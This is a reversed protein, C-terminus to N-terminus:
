LMEPCVEGWLAGSRTLTEVRLRVPRPGAALGGGYGGKEGPMPEGLSGSELLMASPGFVNEEGLRPSDTCEAGAWSLIREESPPVIEGVRRSRRESEPASRAIGRRSGVSTSLPLRGRASQGVRGSRTGENVVVDDEPNTAPHPVAPLLPVQLETSGDGPVKDRGMRTGRATASPGGGLPSPVGAGPGKRFHLMELRECNTVGHGQHLLGLAKPSVHVVVVEGSKKSKESGYRHQATKAGGSGHTRQGLKACPPPATSPAVRYQKSLSPYRQLTMWHPARGKREKMSEHHFTGWPNLAQLSRM